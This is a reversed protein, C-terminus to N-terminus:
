LSGLLVKTEEAFVSLHAAIPISESRKVTLVDGVHRICYEKGM